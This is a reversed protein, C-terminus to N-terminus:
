QELAAVGEAAALIGGVEDLVAEEDQALGGERCDGWCGRFCGDGGGLEDVEEGVVEGGFGGAGLGRGGWFLVGRRM